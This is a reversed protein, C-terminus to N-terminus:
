IYTLLNPESMVEEINKGKIGFNSSIFRKVDEAIEETPRGYEDPKMRLTMIAVIYKRGDGVIMCNSIIPCFEKLMLEIPIPSM